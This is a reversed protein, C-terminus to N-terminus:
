MPTKVNYGYTFMTFPSELCEGNLDSQNITTFFSVNLEITLINKISKQEYTYMCLCLRKRPTQTTSKM